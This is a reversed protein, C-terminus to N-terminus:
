TAQKLIFLLFKSSSDTGYFLASASCKNLLCTVVARLHDRGLVCPRRNAMSLVRLHKVTDDAVYTAVARCQDAIMPDYGVRFLCWLQLQLRNRMAISLTGDQMQALRRKLFPRMVGSRLFLLWYCLAQGSIVGAASRSELLLIGLEALYPM